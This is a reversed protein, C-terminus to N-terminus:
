PRPTPPPQEDARPADGDGGTVAAPLPAAGDPGATRAPTVPESEPGRLLFRGSPAPSVPAPHRPRFRRLAWWLPVGVLAGAVLFPALWGLITLVVVVTLVFANWGNKLGAFLGREPKPEPKPAAAPESLTVTLTSYAVQDAATRKASESTALESERVTLEREIAALETISNARALLARVRGVSARQAAIRADLDITATQLDETGLQRATEAGLKALADVTTTFRPSPVKFTLTATVDDDPGSVQRADAAVYGGAAVVTAIAKSAADPVGDATVALTGTYILPRNRTGLTTPGRSTGDAASERETGPNAPEALPAGAGTDSEQSDDAAGSCGALLLGTLLVAVFAPLRRRVDM